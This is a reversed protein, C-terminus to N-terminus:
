KKLVKVVKGNNLKVINFGNVMDNVKRGDVTYIQLPVTPENIEPLVIGDTKGQYVPRVSHGYSKNVMYWGYMDTEFLLYSAYSIDSTGVSSTWYRGQDNNTHWTYNMMGAMPLFISNGNSGKVYYGSVGNKTSFTWTCRQRLENMETITPMRWDKGWNATAADDEPSLVGGTRTYKTISNASGNCYVYTSWQYDYKTRTEGWAYYDGFDEPVNAGINTTAWCTRSPLGLDVYEHNSKDQKSIDNRTLTSIPRVPASMMEANYGEDYRVNGKNACIAYAFGPSSQTSTWVIALKGTQNPTGMIKWGANPFFISNGNPGTVRYGKEGGETTEQWTCKTVLEKAENYSPTTWKSGWKASVQNVESWDLFTGYGQPSNAGYNIKAWLKGSPLGLDVFEHGDITTVPGDTSEDEDGTPESQKGDPSIGVIAIDVNYEGDVSNMSYYGNATGSWGLNFHFLGSSNYGDCVFIHTSSSSSGLLICPRENDIENKLMDAWEGDSYMGRFESYYLPLGMKNLAVKYKFHKILAPGILNSYTATGSVGYESDAAVGCHYLIKAAEDKAANSWPEDYPSATPIIGWNYNQKSFDVSYKQGNVTVSNSGEGTHPWNHYKMVIAMAAAGCGAYTYRGNVVPCDNWWFLGNQGFNATKLLKSSAYYLSSRSGNDKKSRVATIQRKYFDLFHELVPPMNEFDVSGKDSYAIIDGYDTESSVIYFSNTGNFIYFPDSEGNRYREPLMVYRLTVDSIPKGIGKASSPTVYDMVIQRAKERNITEAFAVVSFCLLLFVLYRKM